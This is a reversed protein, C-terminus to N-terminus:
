LSALLVFFVPALMVVAVVVAVGLLIKEDRSRNTLWKAAAGGPRRLGDRVAASAFRRGSSANLRMVAEIDPENFTQASATAYALATSLYSKRNEVERLLRARESLLMSTHAQETSRKGRRRIEAALDKAAQRREESFEWREVEGRRDTVELVVPKDSTGRKIRAHLGITSMSSTFSKLEWEYLKLNGPGELLLAGQRASGYHKHAARLRHSYGRAEQRYTAWLEEIEDAAAARRYAPPAPAPPV